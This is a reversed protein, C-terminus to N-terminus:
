MGGTMRWRHLKGAASRPVSAVFNITRPVKYPSLRAACHRVLEPRDVLDPAAPVVNAHVVAGLIPDAGGVAMADLVAPHEMLVAEVEAPYVNEGGVNILDTRRPALFLYGDPDLWGHDGVTAFGDPTTPLSLGGLYAARSSMRGSRLYVAGVQGPPLRRGAENLIRVQTLFGRGVTGPRALWEDGRAFTVGIAETSGYSEAIRHPGVMEIWAKKTAFDCAAATHMIGTLSAFDAPGADTLRVVSRMHAPTLQMWEVSETRVLEVLLDPAFVPPLVLTNADLVGEIAATFPATHHLPGTILQRQGSRWGARRLLPSPISRSDYRVPGPVAVVKTLGSSGGSTLLYGARRGVHSRGHNAAEGVALAELGDATLLHVAGYERAVFGLLTAREGAPARPDVPLLPLGASLVGLLLPLTEPDAAAPVAVVPHGPGVPVAARIQEAVEATGAVLRRWSLSGGAGIVAPVNPREDALAALREGVSVGTAVHAATTM